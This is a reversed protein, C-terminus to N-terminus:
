VTEPKQLMNKSVAKVLNKFVFSFKSLLVEMLM